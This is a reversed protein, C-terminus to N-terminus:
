GSSRTGTDCLLNYLWLNASTKANRIYYVDGELQEAGIVTTDVVEVMYDKYFEPDPGYAVLNAEDDYTGGYENKGIPLQVRIAHVADFEGVQERPRARWDKNPQIRARGEWVPVYIGSSMGTGPTWKAVNGTPKSVRVATIMASEVTPRPMYFFNPHFVGNGRLAM